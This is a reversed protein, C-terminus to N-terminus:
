VEIGVAAREDILEGVRDYLRRAHALHEREAALFARIEEVPLERGQHYGKVVQNVNTGVKRVQFAVAAIEGQLAFLQAVQKRRATATEPVGDREADAVALAAEVVFRVWSVGQENAAMAIVVEEEPGVKVEHRGAVRGGEVNARRRRSM